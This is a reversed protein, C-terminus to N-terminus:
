SSALLIENPDAAEPAFLAVMMALLRKEPLTPDFPLGAKQLKRITGTNVLFRDIELRQTQEASFPKYLMEAPDLAELQADPLDELQDVTIPIITVTDQHYKQYQEILAEQQDEPISAMYEDSPKIAKLADVADDVYPEFIFLSTLADSRSTAAWVDDNIQKAIAEARDTDNLNFWVTDALKNQLLEKM